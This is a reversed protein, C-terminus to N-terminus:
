GVAGDTGEADDVHVIRRKGDKGSKRETRRGEREERNSERGNNSNL